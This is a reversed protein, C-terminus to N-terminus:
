QFRAQAPADNPESSRNITHPANLSHAITSQGGVMLDMALKAANMSAGPHDLARLMRRLAHRQSELKQPNRLLDLAYEAVPESSGFWPIFEPVIHNHADALLNM